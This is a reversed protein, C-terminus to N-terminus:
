SERLLEVSSGFSVAIEEDESLGSPASVVFDGAGSTFVIPANAELFGMGRFLPESYQNVTTLYSEMEDHGADIKDALFNGPRAMVDQM